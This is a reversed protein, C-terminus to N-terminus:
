ESDPGQSGAKRFSALAEQLSKDLDQLAHLRLAFDDTDTALGHEALEAIAEHVAAGRGQVEDLWRELSALMENLCDAEDTLYDRRRLRIKRPLSRGELSRFARVFRVLPNTMRSALVAASLCVAAFSAVAVPWFRAHLTLIRNAVLITEDASANGGQMKAILPVFAAVALVGVFVVAASSSALLLHFLLRRHARSSSSSM